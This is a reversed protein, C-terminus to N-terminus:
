LRLVGRRETRRHGEPLPPPPLVDRHPLRRCGADVLAAHATLVCEQGAPRHLVAQQLLAKDVMDLEWASGAEDLVLMDCPQALAAALNKNQLDRTAAKEAENM